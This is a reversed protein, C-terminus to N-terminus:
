PLKGILKQRNAILKEPVALPMRRATLDAIRLRMTKPIASADLLQQATM